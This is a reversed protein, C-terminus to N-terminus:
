TVLQMYGQSLRKNHTDKDSKTGFFDDIEKGPFFTQLIWHGGADPEKLMLHESLQRDLCSTAM